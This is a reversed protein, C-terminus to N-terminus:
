VTFLWLNTKYKNFIFIHKSSLQDTNNTLNKMHYVNKLIFTRKLKVYFYSMYQAIGLWVLNTQCSKLYVRGSGSKKSCVSCGWKAKMKHM